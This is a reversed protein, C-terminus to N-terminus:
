PMHNKPEATHSTTAAKDSRKWVGERVNPAIATATIKKAAPINKARLPIAGRFRHRARM